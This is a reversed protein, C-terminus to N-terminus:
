FLAPFGQNGSRIMGEFLGEARTRAKYRRIEQCPLMDEAAHLIKRAHNIVGGGGEGDRLWADRVVRREDFDDSEFEIQLDDFFTADVIEDLRNAWVNVSARKRDRAAKREKADEIYEGGIAFMFVADWLISQVKRVDAIREKAIDGLEQTSARTMMARRAKQNIPIVREYYGETKGQGRVMARAVLAMDEPDSQAVRLLIPYEWDASMLYDVIRKYTFGGAGLSLSKEEKLNIPTWPDGVRGKMVKVELRTAKSTARIAYLGGEPKARLRIRRCVEIYLPGMSSLPLKQAVTGDWSPTWLLNIGEDTMPYDSTFTSWHEMLARIDREVHKGIPVHLSKGDTPALAFIPRNGLGANMRSIGYNDKGSVGQMTQLTILAFMWDNVDSLEGVATKLDHNKSTVLIDLEDPTGVHAKYEKELEGSSAPPQMFAPRTIDDVVLHWPEDCPFNATLLRIIRRWEEVDMPPETLGAHHMAMTGLQVMFAHWAHRQHPRLSPFSAISNVMLLAYVEPLSAKSVMGDNDKFRFVDETLINLFM